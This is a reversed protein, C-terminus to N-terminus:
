LWHRDWSAAELSSPPMGGDCSSREPASRLAILGTSAAIFGSTSDAAGICLQDVRAILDAVLLVRADVVTAHDVRALRIGEGEELRHKGASM